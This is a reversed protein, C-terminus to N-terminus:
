FHLSRAQQGFHHENHLAAAVDGVGDVGSLLKCRTLVFRHSCRGATLLFPHSITLPLLLPSFFFLDNGKVQLQCLGLDQFVM